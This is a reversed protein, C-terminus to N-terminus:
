RRAIPIDADANKWLDTLRRRTQQADSGRGTADQSLALLHLIAPLSAGGQLGLRVPPGALYSLGRIAQEHRGARHSAVSWVTIHRVFGPTLTVPELLGAAEAPEHNALAVLARILPEQQRVQDRSERAEALAGPL